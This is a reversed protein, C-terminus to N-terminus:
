AAGRERAERRARGHRRGQPRPHLRRAHLVHLEQLWAVRRHGHRLPQERVCLDRAPEVPGGHQAGRVEPGPQGRRRRPQQPTHTHTHTHTNTHTHPLPPPVPPRPPPPTHHQRRSHPPLARTHRCRGIGARGGCCCGLLAPPLPACAGYMAVAINKRGQYKLAFALGAGLPIQAGVIGNGGYFNAAKNYRRRPPTRPAHTARRWTHPGRSGGASCLVCCVACLVCCVACLVCCVACLVCCVACLVCCVARRPSAASPPAAACARPLAGQWRACTCAAASAGAPATGSAWSSRWSRRSPAAAASTSHRAAPRACLTNLQRTRQARQRCRQGPQQERARVCARPRALLCARPCSTHQVCCCAGPLPRPLEHHRRRRAHARGRHGVHSGGPRRLQQHRATTAPPPPPPNPGVARGDAGGAAALSM